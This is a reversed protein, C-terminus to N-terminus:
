AVKEKTSPQAEGASGFTKALFDKMQAEATSHADTIAKTFQDLYNQAEANNSTFPKGLLKSLEAQTQSLIAFWGRTMDVMKQANEQYLSPWESLAAPSKATNLLANIHKSTDAFAATAAESQLRSLRTNAETMIEAIRVATDMIPQRVDVTTQKSSAPTHTSM